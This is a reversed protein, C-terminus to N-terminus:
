RAFIRGTQPPSLGGATGSNCGGRQRGQPGGPDPAAREHRRHSLAAPARNACTACSRMSSTSRCPWSARPCWSSRPYEARRLRAALREMIPILFALTKGTGTQATALVDKGELAPPIASAQVPTPTTFHSHALKQQLGASLPMDKFQTLRNKREQLPTERPPGGNDPYQVPAKHVRQLLGHRALRSSVASAVRIKNPASVSVSAPFAPFRISTRIPHRKCAATAM